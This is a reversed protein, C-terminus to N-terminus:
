RAIGSGYVTETRKLGPLPPSNPWLYPPTHDPAFWITFIWSTRDFTKHARCQRVFEEALSPQDELMRLSAVDLAPSNQEHHRDAVTILAAERREDSYLLWISALGREAARDRLGPWASELAGSHEDSM